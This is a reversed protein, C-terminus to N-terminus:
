WEYSLALNGFLSDFIAVKTFVKDQYNIVAGMKVKATFDGITLKPAIFISDTQYLYGGIDLGLYKHIPLSVYLNIVGYKVDYDERLVNVIFHAQDEKGLRFHFNPYVDNDNGWLWGKGDEKEGNVLEREKEYYPNLSITLGLDIAYWKNDIGAFFGLNIWSEANIDEEKQPITKETISYEPMAPLTKQTFSGRKQFAINTGFRIDKLFGAYDGFGEKYYEIGVNITTSKLYDGKDSGAYREDKYGFLHKGTGGWMTFKDKHIGDDKLWAPFERLKKIKKIKKATTNSKSNNMLSDEETEFSFAYVTLLMLSLILIKRM